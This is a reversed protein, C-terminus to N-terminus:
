TPVARGLRERLLAADRGQRLAIACALGKSWLRRARRTQGLSAYADGQLLRARARAIPFVRAFGVLSSIARRAVKRAQPSSAGGRPRSFALAVEAASAYGELTHFAVPPGAGRIAAVARALSQEAESTKGAALEAKARLGDMWIREVLRIASGCRAAEDLAALAARHDGALVREEARALLAWGRWGENRMSTAVSLLEERITAARAADGAHFCTAGLLALCETWLRRESLRRWTEGASELASIAQQWRGLGALYVGEMQRTWAGASPDDSLAAASLARSRLVGALGHATAIGAAASLTAYARSLEPASGARTAAALSRMLNAFGAPTKGDVYNISALREHGRAAEILALQQATTPGRGSLAAPAASALCRGIDAIVTWTSRWPGRPSAWGVSGVLAELQVRASGGDGIGLYADALQRRVKLSDVSEDASAALELWRSLHVISDEFAGARLTQEGAIRRYQGERALDGGLGFHRALTGAWRLTRAEPARMKEIALAAARHFSVVDAASLTRYAAERLKDHTFRHETSGGLELIQRAVLEDLAPSIDTAGLGPAASLLETDFDRGLVAAFGCLARAPASLAGLRRELLDQLSRVPLALSELHWRGRGDRRLQGTVLAARLYEAAVFPNGDAEEHLMAVLERPPDVVALTDSVIASLAQEDLRRLEVNASSVARLRGAVHLGIEDSRYTGLLLVANRQFFEKGLWEVFDISLPDAWEWDDIVLLLPRRAAAAALTEALSAFLRERWAQGSLQPPVVQPGRGPVAALAPEIVSLVQGRTGVLRDTEEPSAQRVEDAVATLFGKFPSLPPIPNAHTSPPVTEVVVRLRSHMAARTAIEAALRTKGIGSEGVIFAVGGEGGACREVLRQLAEREAHRGVLRARYLYPRGAPVQPSPRSPIGLADLREAVDRAYGVRDRPDPALLHRILDDLGPPLAPRRGDLAAFSLPAPRERDVPWNGRPPEGTVIQHLIGGLAYLDARADVMDGRLQEPAVFAATGSPRSWTGVSERSSTHEAAALGFDILVPLGDDRFLINRPKLDRHVLGEGHIFALTDCLDRVSALLPAIAAFTREDGDPLRAIRGELSGGPMREMAYWPVGDVIGHDVVRIVGPHSLRGLTHIERRLAAVRRASVDSVQKIAVIEGTEAHRGVRVIAMGGSGITDLIEFPGLRQPPRVLLQSRQAPGSREPPPHGDADNAVAAILDLCDACRDLHATVRARDLDHVEGALLRLVVDESVCRL